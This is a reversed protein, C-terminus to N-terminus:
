GSSTDKPGIMGSIESVIIKWWGDRVSRGLENSMAFVSWDIM